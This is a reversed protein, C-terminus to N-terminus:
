STKDPSMPFTFLISALNVATGVSGPLYEIGASALSFVM